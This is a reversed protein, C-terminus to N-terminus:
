LRPIYCWSCHGSEHRKVEMVIDIVATCARLICHSNGGSPDRMRITPYIKMVIPVFRAVMRILLRDPTMCLREIMRPSGQRTEIKRRLRLGCACPVFRLVEQDNGSQDNTKRHKQVPSSSSFLTVNTVDNTGSFM